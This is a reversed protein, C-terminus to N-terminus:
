YLHSIAELEHIDESVLGPAWRAVDGLHNTLGTTHTTDAWTHIAGASLSALTSHEPVTVARVVSLRAFIM